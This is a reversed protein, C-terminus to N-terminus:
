KMNKVDEVELPYLRQVPRLMIGGSTTKVTATRIHGDKGPFVELIRGMPWELRKKNDDGVLVVDGVSIVRCRKDQGRQVLLGLYETRFRQKLQNKIEAFDRYKRQLQNANLVRVEPFETEMLDQLFMSPTLPILDNPDETVFTLPRGNIVAEVECLCTELTPRNLKKNGLIRKLQDKVSRILREWFGGWWAASPPNFIWQIRKCRTEEEIKTWDLKAFLNDAGVFNTGNDSYITTPRGRRSVFRMLALLFEDSTLKSVLEMHVCRYIACTFLVIWVKSGGKLFLPGALDVGTIQFAKGDKVRNEPLPASISELRKVQFRKCTSCKNIVKKVARRGGLIWVTERLKGM